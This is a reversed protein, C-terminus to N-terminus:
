RMIFKKDVVSFFGILEMVCDCGEYKFYIETDYEKHLYEDIKATVEGKEYIAEMFDAIVQKDTTFDNMFYDFAIAEVGNTKVTPFVFAGRVYRQKDRKTFMFSNNEDSKDFFMYESPDWLKERLYGYGTVYKRELNNIVLVYPEPEFDTADELLIGKAICRKVFGEFNVYTNGNYYYQYSATTTEPNVVLIDTISHKYVRFGLEILLLVLLFALIIKTKKKM